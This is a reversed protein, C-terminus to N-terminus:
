DYDKIENMKKQFEALAAKDGQAEAKQALRAYFYKQSGFFGEYSKRLAAIDNSNKM